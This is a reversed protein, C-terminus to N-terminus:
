SKRNHAYGGETGKKARDEKKVGMDSIDLAQHVDASLHRVMVGCKHSFGFGSVEKQVEGGVGVEEEGHLVSM